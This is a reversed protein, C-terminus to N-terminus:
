VKDPVLRIRLRYGVANAYRWLTSISPSHATTGELRSVASKSTGMRQAVEDQTLEARLRAALLDRMVQIHVDYETSPYRRQM